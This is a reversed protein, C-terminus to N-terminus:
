RFGFYGLIVLVVVVVGIIYFINNMLEGKPGCRSGAKGFILCRGHWANATQIYWPKDNRVRHAARETFSNGRRKAISTAFARRERARSRLRLSFIRSGSAVGGNNM